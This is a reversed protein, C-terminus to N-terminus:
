TAPENTAGAVVDLHDAEVAESSTELELTPHIWWRASQAQTRRRRAAVRFDREEFSGNTVFCSRGLLRTVRGAHPDRLGGCLALIAFRKASLNGDM